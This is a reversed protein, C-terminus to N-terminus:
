YGQYMYQWKDVLLNNIQIFKLDGQFKNYNARISMQFNWQPYM